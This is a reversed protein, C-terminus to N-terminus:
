KKENCHKKRLYELGHKAQYEQVEIHKNYIAEYDTPGRKRKKVVFRDLKSRSPVKENAQQVSGKAQNMFAIMMDLNHPDKVCDVGESVWKCLLQLSMSARKVIDRKDNISELGMSYASRIACPHIELDDPDPEVDVNVNASQTPCPSQTADGIECRDM